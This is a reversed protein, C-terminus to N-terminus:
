GGAGVPGGAAFDFDCKSPEVDAEGCTWPAHSEPRSAWPPTRQAILGFAPRFRTKQVPNLRERRDPPESVCIAGDGVESVCLKGAPSVERLRPNDRIRSGWTAVGVM